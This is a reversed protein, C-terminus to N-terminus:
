PLKKLAGTPCKKVASLLEDTSLANFSATLASSHSFKVIGTDHYDFIDPAELQCLGCAICAEPLIQIKM